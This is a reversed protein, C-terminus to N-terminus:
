ERKGEQYGIAIHCFLGVNAYRAIISGGYTGNGQISGYYGSGEDGITACFGLFGFGKTVGVDGAFVYGVIYLPGIVLQIAGRVSSFCHVLM